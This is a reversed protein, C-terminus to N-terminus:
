SRARSGPRSGSCSSGRPRSWGSPPRGAATASGRWRRERAGNRTPSCPMPERECPARASSRRSGRGPAEVRAPQGRAAGAPRRSAARPEADPGGARGATRRRRPDAPDRRGGGRPQALRVADRGPDPRRRRRPPGQLRRLRDARHRRRDRDGRLRALDPHHRASPHRRRVPRQPDVSRRRRAIRRPSRPGCGADLRPPGPHARGAHRAGRGPRVAGDLLRRTGQHQALLRQPDAGRGDRRLDIQPRRGAGAPRRSRRRPLRRERDCRARTRASRQDRRRRRRRGDRDRRAPRAPHDRRARDGCTGDGARRRRSHRRLDGDRPGRRRLPRRPQRDPDPGRARGRAAARGRRRDGRRPHRRGRDSGRAAPVRLPSEHEAEFRARLSEPEGTVDLEFSQGAYRLEYVVEFRVASGDDVRRKAEAVATELRGDAIASEDLLLTRALDRRPEGSNLGLASLVGAARPCLIRDIGLEAAIAAAHLGGAGGFSVLAQGRPDVGREVTVVRLAGVMELNAIRVIGAATEEASLGLESALRGVAAAAADRDLAVGADAGLYGLVLNADTVTPESGGRGYAAPGPDAGASRPGVRLAGGDDRWGISGGGAGVTHVDVMPLGIPRGAIEAGAGHRVSGDEILCVDCSTGGMDFGVALRAGAAAATVGAGVAGGAPGSLVSWAGGRRAEDLMAIGGSSQM